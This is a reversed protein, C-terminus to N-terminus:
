WLARTRTPAGRREPRKGADATRPRVPDHRDVKQGQADPDLELAALRAAAPDTRQLEAVRMALTPDVARGELRVEFHLHPGTARGTSGVQGIRGGALIPTGKEIEIRNLHAYRTVLGGGHDIYIVKGYGHQRGTFAVLGPGAAYVPTGRDASFDTGKHFKARRNMPDRRWGFGSSEVGPVPSAVLPTLDPVIPAFPVLQAIMIQSELALDRIHMQLRAGATIALEPLQAVWLSAQSSVDRSYSAIASWSASEWSSEGSFRWSTETDASAAKPSAIAACLAGALIWPRAAM